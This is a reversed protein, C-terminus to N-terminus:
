TPHSSIVGLKGLVSFHKIKTLAKTIVDALQQCTGIHHLSILGEQLKIRVFHCDVEIHKTREHFVPNRAIHLASLSDCHIPIPLDISVTLEELLRSLWVLEGVVKRLARYEAEASSLFITEQKKSKWSIPSGELFVIYGSVSRRSDPCAAWDSDGYAALPLNDANSFYLGLTPDKKLYRLMHYAAQLHPERPDQMFQSLHQVGYAIDLRTNTLFNLKGILKRYFTPDSLPTGEKAKLKVTSDLPSTLAPSHLCEYEKLLDLVFKRQSIIIGDSKYLIELGLFYHLQGLDIIKFKDHLFAKLQNIEESDTETLLVDNVYVAVFVIYSAQKRYFLSYDHMSHTYGRSYLVETLKDYWQRSAQKLGYLSKNLKCVLRPSHVLGPPAQMYVEEHLDGHIYQKCRSIQWKKKAAIAILSRITTM